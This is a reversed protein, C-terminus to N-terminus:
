ARKRKKQPPGNENAPIRKHVISGATVTGGQEHLYHLNQLGRVQAVDVGLEAAAADLDRKGKQPFVVTETCNGRFRTAVEAIRQSIGIVEIGYHRGRSCIEAFGPAHNAGGNVTFSMNLEEVALTIQAGRGTARFPEQAAMLLRSLGSLAAAERGSPPVYALRFGRWNAAMQVRVGDLGHARHEIVRFGEGGYEALPDFIVVRRVGRLKNKVYSSKGSGSRGWVGIRGANSRASM